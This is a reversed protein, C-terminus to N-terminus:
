NLPCHRRVATAITGADVGSAVAFAEQELLIMEGDFDSYVERVRAAKDWGWTGLFKDRSDGTFLLEMEGDIKGDLCDQVLHHAEHRITDFDNDTFEVFEGNFSTVNDQCIVIKRDWPAYYGDFREGTIRLCDEKRNFAVEVGAGEVAEVLEVIGESSSFSPPALFVGGLTIASLVISKLNM